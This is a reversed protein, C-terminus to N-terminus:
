PLLSRRLDHVQEPSLPTERAGAVEEPTTPAADAAIADNGWQGRVYTVVAAIEADSLFDFAPMAGDISAGGAEIPGALGNLVVLAPFDPSLFLDPNGALPPFEGPKGTGDPQHCAICTEAYVAAGDAAAAATTAPQPPPETGLYTALYDLIQTRQDDTIRLGFSAMNDLVADWAGRRIGASDVVSQLDHCTQCHGYVLARGPGEPLDFRQAAGVM